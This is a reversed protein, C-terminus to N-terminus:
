VENNTINGLSGSEWAIKEKGYAWTKAKDEAEDLTTDATYKICRLNGGEYYILLPGRDPDYKLEVYENYDQLKYHTAITEM